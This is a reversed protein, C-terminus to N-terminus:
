TIPTATLPLLRSHTKYLEALGVLTEEKDGISFEMSLIKSVKHAIEPLLRSVGGAFRLRSCEKYPDIKKIATVYNEVMKDIVSNRDAREKWFGCKNLMEGAPIHTVVDLWQKFFFHRLENRVDSPKKILRSVQSGTGINICIDKEGIGAGLIAAYMDGVGGFIPIDHTNRDVLWQALNLHKGHLGSYKGNKNRWSVYPTTPKNYKNVVVFGGMEACLWIAEPKDFMGLITDFKEIYSDRDLTVEGDLGYVPVSAAISIPEGMVGDILTAAKVRSAGFDLLLIM